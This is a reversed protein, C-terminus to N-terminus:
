SPPVSGLAGAPLDCIGRRIQEVLKPESSDAEIIARGKLGRKPVGEHFQFEGEDHDGCGREQGGRGERVDTVVVMMTVVMM